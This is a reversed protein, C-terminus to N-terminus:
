IMAFRMELTDESPQNLHLCTVRSSGTTLSILYLTSLIYPSPVTHSGVSWQGAMGLLQYKGILERAISITLMFLYIMVILPSVWLTNLDILDLKEVKANIAAAMMSKHPISHDTLTPNAYM